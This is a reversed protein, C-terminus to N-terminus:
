VQFGVLAVHHCINLHKIKELRLRALFCTAYVNVGHAEPCTLVLNAGTMSKAITARQKMYKRSTGQWYLVCKLQRESWNPFKARMKEVHAFLNFESFAIYIPKRLDMVDAIFPAKPPCGERGYNPCGKPHNPYPFKCWDGTNKNTIIKGIEIIGFPLKM